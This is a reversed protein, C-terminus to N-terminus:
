SRRRPPSPWRDGAAASLDAVLRAAAAAVWGVLESRGAFLQDAAWEGGEDVLVVAPALASPIPGRALSRRRRPLTLTGTLIWTGERTALAFTLGPVDSIRVREVPWRALVGSAVAYWGGLTVTLEALLGRAFLAVTEGTQLTVGRLL